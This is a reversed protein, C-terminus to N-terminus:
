SEHEGARCLVALVLSPELADMSRAVASGPVFVAGPCAVEERHPGSTFAVRGRLLVFVVDEEMRCPPISAGKQLEIRRVKVRQEDLVVAAAVLPQPASAGDDPAEPTATVDLVKM